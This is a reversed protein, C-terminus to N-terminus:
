ASRGLYAAVQAAERDLQDAQAAGGGARIQTAATLRSAVEAKLIGAIDGASLVLRQAEAGGSAFTASDAPKAGAPLAVAEANDIAAILTRILAVDERRREVMATKLDARLAERIAQAAAAM